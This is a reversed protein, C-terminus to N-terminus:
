QSGCNVPTNTGNLQDLTDLLSKAESMKSAAPAYDPNIALARDFACIAVEYEQNFLAEDGQQFHSAIVRPQLAARAEQAKESSSTDPSISSYLEYAKILRGGTALRAARSLLESAELDDGLTAMVTIQEASLLDADLSRASRLHGAAADIAGSMMSAQAHEIFYGAALHVLQSDAPFAALAQSIATAKAGDGSASMIQQAFESATPPAVAAVEDSTVDSDPVVETVGDGVATDLDDAIDAIAEVEAEVPRAPPVAPKAGPIRIIQGRQVASPVAIDNYRALAYFRMASGLYAESVTALTDGKRLTYSFSRDGFSELASPELNAQLELALKNTPREELYAALHLRAECEQGSQLNNLATRLRQRAPIDSSVVCESVTEQVAVALDSDPGSTGTTKCASILGVLVLATGSTLYHKM